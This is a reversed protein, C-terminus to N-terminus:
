NLRGAKYDEAFKKPDIKLKALTESPTEVRDDGSWAPIDNLPSDEGGTKSAADEIFFKGNSDTRVGAQRAARGILQDIADNCMKAYNPSAKVDISTSAAMQKFEPILHSWQGSLAQICEAETIRANAQVTMAFLARERNATKEEEPITAPDRPPPENSKVAEQKITEWESKLSNV